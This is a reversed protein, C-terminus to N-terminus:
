PQEEIFIQKKLLPLDYHVIEWVIRPNIDFYAHTIRNRLAIIQSWPVDPYQQCFSPSLHRSAEGIIELQRVVGDQVLQNHMFQEASLNHVYVAIQAIADLIHQVYVNDDKMYFRAKKKLLLVSISALHM